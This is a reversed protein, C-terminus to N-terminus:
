YSSILESVNKNEVEFFSLFKKVKEIIEMHDYFEIISEKDKTLRINNLLINKEVIEKFPIIEIFGFRVAVNYDNPNKLYFEKENYYNTAENIIEKEIKEFNELKAIQKTAQKQKYLKNLKAYKESWSGGNTKNLLTGLGKDKRGIQAILEKELCNAEIYNLNKYLIVVDYDFLISQVYERWEYGRGKGMAYPRNKVGIGVYFVEQAEPDIHLYVCVNKDLELDPLKNHLLNSLEKSM